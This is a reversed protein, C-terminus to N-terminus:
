SLDFSGVGDHEECDRREQDEDGDGGTPYGSAAGCFYIGYFGEAELSSSDWTDRDRRVGVHCRPRKPNVEDYGSRHRLRTLRSRSTRIFRLQKRFFYASLFPM